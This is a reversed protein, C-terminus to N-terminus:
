EHRCVICRAQQVPKFMRSRLDACDFIPFDDAQQASSGTGFEAVVRL